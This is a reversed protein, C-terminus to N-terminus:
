DPLITALVDNETLGRRWLNDLEGECAAEFLFLWVTEQPMCVANALRADHLNSPRVFEAKFLCLWSKNHFHRKWIPTTFQEFCEFNRVARNLFRRYAEDRAYIIKIETKGSKPTM